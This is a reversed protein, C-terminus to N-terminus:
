SSRLEAQAYLALMVAESRPHLICTAAFEEAQPYDTERIREAAASLDYGTQRLEVDPGLVLWYAGPEGFPMGVSGANVVRIAGVKRDFQMHTHGCIVAQETVDHFVPQLVDAPTSKTFIETDSRPTAHCFLVPGLGDITGSWSSPWRFRVRDVHAELKRATWRIVERFPAPVM